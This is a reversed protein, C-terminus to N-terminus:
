QVTKRHKDKKKVFMWRCGIPERGDPLDTLEWTGVEELRTLEKAGNKKRRVPLAQEATDPLIEGSTTVKYSYDIINKNQDELDEIAM